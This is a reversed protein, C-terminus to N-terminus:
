GWQIVWKDRVFGHTSQQIGGLLQRFFVLDGGQKRVANAAENDLESLADPPWNNRPGHFFHRAEIFLAMDGRVDEGYSLDAIRNVPNRNEQFFRGLNMLGSKIDEWEEDINEIDGMALDISQESGQQIGNTVRDLYRKLVLIRRLIKEQETAAREGTMDAPHVPRSIDTQIAHKQLRYEALMEQGRPSDFLIYEQKKGFVLFRFEGLREDVAYIKGNYNFTPLASM